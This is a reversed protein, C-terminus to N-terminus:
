KLTVKDRYILTTHDVIIGHTTHSRSPTTSPTIHRQM